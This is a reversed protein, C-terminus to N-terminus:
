HDGWRDDDDDDCEIEIACEPERAERRLEELEDLAYALLETAHEVDEESLADEESRLVILRAVADVLNCAAQNLDESTTEGLDGLIRDLDFVEDIAVDYQYDGDDVIRMTVLRQAREQVDLAAHHREDGADRVLEACLREHDFFRENAAVDGRSRAFMGVLDFLEPKPRRRLWRHEGHIYEAHM